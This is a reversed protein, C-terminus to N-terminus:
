TAGRHWMIFEHATPEHGLAKECEVWRPNVPAPEIPPLARLRHYVRECIARKLEKVADEQYGEPAIMMLCLAEEREKAQIIAQRVADLPEMGGRVLEAAIEPVRRLMSSQLAKQVDSAIDSMKWEEFSMPVFANECNPGYRRCDNDHQANMQDVYENYQQQLTTM